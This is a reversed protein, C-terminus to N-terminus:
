RVDCRKQSSDRHTRWATLSGIGVAGAGVREPGLWRERDAWRRVMESPRERDDGRLRACRVPRDLGRSASVVRKEITDCFVAHERCPKVDYLLASRRTLVQAFFIKELM